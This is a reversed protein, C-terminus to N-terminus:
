ILHQPPRLFGSPEISTTQAHRTPYRSSTVHDSFGSGTEILVVSLCIGSCCQTSSQEGDDSMSMSGCTEHLSASSATEHAHAGDAHDSSSAVTHHNGHM